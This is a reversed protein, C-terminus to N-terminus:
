AVYYESDSNGSIPWTKQKPKEIEDEWRKESLWGQAMKPTRGQAEIAPRRKAEAKAGVLIRELLEPSYGTIAMWSKEAGGKGQKYGFADWFSDFDKMRDDKKPSPKIETVAETVPMHTPIDESLPQKLTAKRNSKKIEAGRKGALSQKQKYNDVERIISKTYETTGIGSVLDLAFQSVWEKHKGDPIKFVEALFPAADIRYFFPKSM